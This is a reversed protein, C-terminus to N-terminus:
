LGRTISVKNCKYSSECLFALYGKQTQLSLGRLKLMVKLNVLLHNSDGSSITRFGGRLSPYKEFLSTDVTVPEKEFFTSFMHISGSDNPTTWRKQKPVWIRGPIKKLKEIWSREFSKHFEVSVTCSDLERLFISM